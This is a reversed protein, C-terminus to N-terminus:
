NAGWRTWRDFWESLDASLPLSGRAAQRLALLHRCPGQRLGARRHHPCPCKGRRILGDADLLLEVAQRDVLGTVLTKGDGVDQQATVLAKHQAILNRAAVLEANEPGLEAEGLPQPMVSRWRYVGAALDYIVQGTHALHQLAALCEPKPVNAALTIASQSAARQTRLTDTIREVADLSPAQPLRLLDLATSQTWNNTTWGSLGLTLRMEGMRAVWFSPLGTGLLYVDVGDLLPLVRALFMLRRTGWIRIPEGPPGDYRTTPSAFPQQWPELVLRPAAGPLLEFRLARPSTRPRHRKLWALLSYICSRDLSVRRMPLTMASQVQLFGRLWSAPVDIKEERHEAVESTNVTFGHPDIQLRTTRYSRLSQLHDYLDWSYDVNTTGLRLQPSSGFGDDRNVTLCGYSSEDASFCEFLVADDAVTLIPDCPMLLRWLTPDLLFLRAAYGTRLWWYRQRAIAFERALQPELEPPSEVATSLRQVEARYLAGAEQRQQQKWALYATKDRRQFRLDSVVVDHLASMAERFRLPHQLAADFAVAERRLNPAFALRSDATLRSRGAYAVTYEM